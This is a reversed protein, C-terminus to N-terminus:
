RSPAARRAATAGAPVEPRADPTFTIMVGAVAGSADMAYRVGYSGPVGIWGAPFLDRLYTRCDYLPQADRPSRALLHEEDTAHGDIVLQGNGSVYACGDITKDMGPEHKMRRM